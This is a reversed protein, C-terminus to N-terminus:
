MQLQQVGIVVCAELIWFKRAPGVIRLQCWLRARQQYNSDTIMDYRLFFLFFSRATSIQSEESWTSSKFFASRYFSRWTLIFVLPACLTKIVNLVWRGHIFAIQLNMNLYEYNITTCSMSSEIKISMPTYLLILEYDHWFDDSSPPNSGVWRLGTVKNTWQQNILRRYM